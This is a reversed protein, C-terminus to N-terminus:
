DRAPRALAALPTAGNGPEMDIVNTSAGPKPAVFAPMAGGVMEAFRKEANETDIERYTKPRASPPALAIRAAEARRAPLVTLVWGFPKGIGKSMAERAIAEFEEPTAGQEILATCRPDSTDFSTPPIGGRKLAQGVRGRATVPDERASVASATENESPSHKHTHIHADNQWAEQWQEQSADAMGTSNSSGNADANVDGSGDGDKQWRKAAGAAGAKSKKATSAKARELEVTLRKQRLRDGDVRFFELIVSRMARWKSPSLKAISALQADDGPLSGDKKWMAMLLLLYAGHQETTLHSTDGLYKDVLLPMWIIEIEKTM